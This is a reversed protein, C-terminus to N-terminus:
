NRRDFKRKLELLEKKKTLEKMKKRNYDKINKSRMLKDKDKLKLKVSMKKM